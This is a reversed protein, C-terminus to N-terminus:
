SALLVLFVSWVIQAEATNEMKNKVAAEEGSKEMREKEAGKINGLLVAVSQTRCISM